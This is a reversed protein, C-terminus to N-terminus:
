SKKLTLRVLAEASAERVQRNFFHEGRRLLALAEKSGMKELGAVAGLRLETTGPLWSKKLFIKKLFNFAERSGTRGLFEFLAKKEEFSRAKFRATSIETMLQGLRSTDGLFKLSTTAKLRVEQDKDNMLAMLLKNALEDNFSALAEIAKLKLDKSSMTLFAAFFSIIKHAPQQQMIEILAETLRPKQEDLQSTIIGPEIAIKERFFNQVLRRFAQKDLKEYMEAMFPIATLDFQNLYDFLAEYNLEVKSDVLKRIEDFIKSDSTRTLFDDLKAARAPQSSALLTKLERIKKNLIIPINFHGNKINELYFDQLINLNAVFQGENEEQAMIEMMLNIFEEEPSLKRNRELLRNLENIDEETLKLFTTQKEPPQGAESISPRQQQGSEQGEAEFTFNQQWNEPLEPLEKDVFSDVAQKEEPKLALQGSFLEQRNVEIDVVKGALEQPIIQLGRKSLSETREELIRNEIFEEPAYYQLNPFDKLWLANVVDSEEAPKASELRIIELLDNIEEDDMGQYFALLRLGDKFFFFPLSKSSIEDQYVPKDQYYFGFEGISLELRQYETLFAKLKSIFDQRFHIASTHEPPFIKLASITNALSLVLEKVRQVAQPDAREEEAPNEKTRDGFPMTM